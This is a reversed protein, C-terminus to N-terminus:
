PSICLPFNVSLVLLQWSPFLPCLALSVQPLPPVNVRKFGEPKLLLLRNLFHVVVSLSVIILAEEVDSMLLKVKSKESVRPPVARRAGAAGLGM